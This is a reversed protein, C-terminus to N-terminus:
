SLINLVVIVLFAHFKAFNSSVLIHVPQHSRPLQAHNDVFASAATMVPAQEVTSSPIIVGTNPAPAPAINIPQQQPQPPLIKNSPASNLRPRIPTMDNGGGCNSAISAPSQTPVVMTGNVLRQVYEEQAFEGHVVSNIVEDVSDKTVTATPAVQDQDDFNPEYPDSSAHQPAPMIHPQQTPTAQPKPLFVTPQPALRIVSVSSGGATGCNSLPPSLQQQAQVTKKARKVKERSNLSEEDKEQKVREIIHQVYKTYNAPQATATTTAAVIQQVQQQQPQDAVSQIGAPLQARNFIIQKNDTSVTVPSVLSFATASPALVFAPQSSSFVAESASSAANVVFIHQQGTAPIVSVPTLLTVPQSTQTPAVPAVPTSVATSDATSATSTVPKQFEETAEQQQQQQQQQLQKKAEAEAALSLLDLGSEEFDVEMDELSKPTTKTIPSTLILSPKSTTVEEEEATEVPVPPSPPQEKILKIEVPEMPAPEEPKIAVVPTVDKLEQDEVVEHERVEEPLEPLPSPCPAEIEEIIEAEEDASDIQKELLPLEDTTSEEPAINDANNATAVNNVPSCSRSIRPTSSATSSASPSPSPKRRRAPFFATPTQRVRRASSVDSGSSGSRDNEEDSSTFVKRVLRRKVVPASKKVFKQTKKTVDDSNRRKMSSVSLVRKRKKKTIDNGEVVSYRRPQEHRHQEPESESSGSDGEPRKLRSKKVPKASRQIPEPSEPTLLPPRKSRERNKVTVLSDDTHCEDTDSNKSSERHLRDRGRHKRSKLLSKLAEPKAEPRETGSASDKNGRRKIKDYMTEYHTGEAALLDEIKVSDLNASQPKWDEEDSEQKRRKLRKRKTTSDSKSRPRSESIRDRPPSKISKSAMPVANTANATTQKQIASNISVTAPADSKPLKKFHLKNREFPTITPSAILRRASSGGNNMPKVEMLPIERVKRSKMGAPLTTNSCSQQQPQQKIGPRPEPSSVKPLSNPKEIEEKTKPKPTTLAM